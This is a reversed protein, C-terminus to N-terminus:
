VTTELSREYSGTSCLRDDAALLMVNLADKVTSHVMWSLFDRIAVEDIQIVQGMAKPTALFHM